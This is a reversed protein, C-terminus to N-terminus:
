DGRALSGVTDAIDRMTCMRAAHGHTRDMLLDLAPDSAVRDRMMRLRGDIEAASADIAAIASRTSCASDNGCASVRFREHRLARATTNPHTRALTRLEEACRLGAEGEAIVARRRAMPGATGLDRASRGERAGSRPLVAVVLAAALLGSVVTAYRVAARGVHLRQLQRGLAPTDMFDEARSALDRCSFGIPM